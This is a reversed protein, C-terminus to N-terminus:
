AASEFGDRETASMEADAAQEQAELRQAREDSADPAAAGNLARGYLAMEVAAMARDVQALTEERLRAEEIQAARLEENEKKLRAIAAAQVRIADDRGSVRAAAREMRALAATFRAMAMELDDM